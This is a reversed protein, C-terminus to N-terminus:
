SVNSGLLGHRDSVHLSDWGHAQLFETVGIIHVVESSVHSSHGTHHQLSLCTRLHLKDVSFSQMGIPVYVLAIDIDIVRTILLFFRELGIDEVQVSFLILEHCPEVVFAEMVHLHDGILGQFQVLPADRSVEHVAIHLLHPVDVGGALQYVLEAKSGVIGVKRIKHSVGGVAWLPLLVSPGSIPM